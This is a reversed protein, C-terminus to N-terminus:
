YPHLLGSREEPECDCKRLAVRWTTDAADVMIATAIESPNSHVLAELTISEIQPHPVIKSRTLVPDDFLLAELESAVTVLDGASKGPLKVTSVYRYRTM